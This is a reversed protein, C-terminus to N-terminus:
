NKAELVTQVLRGYNAAADFRESGTQTAQISLRSRLAADEALTQLADALAPPDDPPVIWGTEGHTVAEPLAGVTTTIVPLGSTLAEMVALPLCDGRTPFVFLDADAYLQRLAESNPGVDHRITVNPLNNGAELTANM